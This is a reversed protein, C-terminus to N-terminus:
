EALDGEEGVLHGVPLYEPKAPGAFPEATDGPIPADPHTVAPPLVLVRSVMGFGIVFAEVGVQDGIQRDPRLM